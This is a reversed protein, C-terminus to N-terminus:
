YVGCAEMFSKLADRVAEPQGGSLAKTLSKAAALEAKDNVETMEPDSATDEIPELGMDTVGGIPDTGSASFADGLKSM